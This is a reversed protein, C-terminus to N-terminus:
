DSQKKFLTNHFIRTKKDPEYTIIEINKCNYIGMFIVIGFISCSAFAAGKIFSKKIYM